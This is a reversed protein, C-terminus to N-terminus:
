AIGKEYERAADAYKRADYLNQAESLRQKVEAAVAKKDPRESSKAPPKSATTASSGTPNPTPPSVLVPTKLRRALRQPSQQHKEWLDQLEDTNIAELSTGDVVRRDALVQIETLIESLSREDPTINWTYVTGDRTVSRIRRGEEIFLADSVEDDHRIPGTVPEGTRADWVRMVRQGTAGWRRSGVTLLLTSDPSFQVFEINTGFTATVSQGTRTDWIKARGGSATALLRGDPSFGGASVDQDHGLSPFCPAGTEANWVRVAGNDFGASAVTKGDPSIAAFLTNNHIAPPSLPKAAQIDWVVASGPYGSTQVLLRRSDRSFAGAAFRVQKAADPVSIRALLKGQSVSWLGAFRMTKKTERSDDGNAPPLYGGLTCLYRGDGSFFAATASDHFMAPVVAAGSHSDCLAIEGVGARSEGITAYLRGDDSLAAAALRRVMAPPGVPKGSDVRWVRVCAGRRALAHSGGPTLAVTKEMNVDGDLADGERLVATTEHPANLQWIWVKNPGWANQLALLNGASNFRSRGGTQKPQRLMALPTGTQADWLWATVDHYHGTVFLRSDGSFFVYCIGQLHPSRRIGIVSGDDASRTIIEDTDAVVLRTGDPSLAACVHSRGPGNSLYPILPTDSDLRCLQVGKNNYFLVRGNAYGGEIPGRIVTVGQPFGDFCAPREIQQGTAIECGRTHTADYALIYRSDETFCLVSRQSLGDMEVRLSRDSTNWARVTQTLSKNAAVAFYEGNASFRIDVVAGGVALPPASPKGTDLHWSLVVGGKVGTLLCKGDPSIAGSSYADPLAITTRAKGTEADRVQASKGAATVISRGDPSFLTDEPGRLMHRLSPSQRLAAAIRIRHTKARAVDDQEFKLSEAFWLLAAFVDGDEQLRAGMDVYSRALRQRSELAKARAVARQEEAVLLNAAAEDRAKIAVSAEGDARYAERTARVAFSTSVVSGVLLAIALLGALSAVVPNRRCWRWVREPQGIPRSRIPEGRLWRRLEASLDEATQHRRSPEKALCKLCITELDRPIAADLRRPSPPDDFVVQLLLMRLEGRFPREGTLLEFLVVGLSYIDCRRDAQHGEGRAQEPSMYAPTGLIAGEVTMTIEGAERKALGFDMLHPEGSSDVMINSPKLDRHVVGIRHAYDLADAIKAALEASERFSPRHRALAAVLSDGEILDSVIYVSEGELGVEHVSVINPHRLQAATRAERLFRETDERSLRGRRPIKVAVWRDLQTDRAMWVTGFAGEGLPELLEFHGVMRRGRRAADQSPPSPATADGTLSFSGGCSPCSIDEPIADLIEIPNHCHPCHVHFVRRQTSPERAEQAITGAVPPDSSRSLSATQVAAEGSGDQFLSKILERCAPFADLYDAAAPKAGIRRRYDVDLLILARLLPRRADASVRTLVDTIAPRRGSQWLAEFKRCVAHIQRQVDPSLSPGPDTM